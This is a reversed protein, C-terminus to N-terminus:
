RNQEWHQMTEKVWILSLVRMKPYSRKDKEKKYKSKVSRKDSASLLLSSIWVEEGEVGKTVPRIWFSMWYYNWFRVNESKNTNSKKRCFGLTCACITQWVSHLGVSGFTFILSNVVWSNYVKFAPYPSLRKVFFYSLVKLWTGTCKWITPKLSM